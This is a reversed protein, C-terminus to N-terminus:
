GSLNISSRSRKKSALIMGTPTFPNLNAALKDPGPLSSTSLRPKCRERDLLLRGRASPALPALALGHSTPVPTFPASSKELITKPTAPSDLLRLSKVRKYPPSDTCATASHSRFPFTPPSMAEPSSDISSHSFDLKRALPYPGRSPSDLEPSVSTDLDDEVDASSVTHLSYDLTSEGEAMGSECEFRLMSQMEADFERGLPRWVCESDSNSPVRVLQQYNVPLSCCLVCLM